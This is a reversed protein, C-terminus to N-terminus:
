TEYLSTLTPIMCLVYEDSLLGTECIVPDELVFETEARLETANIKAQTVIDCREAAEEAPCQSSSNIFRM